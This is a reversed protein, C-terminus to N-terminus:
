QFDLHSTTETSTFCRQVLDTHFDLHGDQAGRGQYAKHNRLFNLVMNVSLGPPEHNRHVYLLVSSSRHSLGPPRGPSGTGLTLGPPIQPRLAVSFCFLLCIFLVFCFLFCVLVFAVASVRESQNPNHPLTSLVVQCAARLDLSALEAWPNDLPPRIVIM